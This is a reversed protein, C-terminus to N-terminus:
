LAAYDEPRAAVIWTTEAEVGGALEEVAAVLPGVVDGDEADVALGAAEVEGAVVSDDPVGRMDHEEIQRLSRSTM